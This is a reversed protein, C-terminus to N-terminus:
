EAPALRRAAELTEGRLTTFVARLRVAEGASPAGAPWPLTLVYGRVGLADVWTEATEDQSFTWVHLPTAEGADGADRGDAPPGFVELRLRGARKVVDGEADLPQLVVHLGEPGAQGDEDVPGTPDAFRVALPRYPDEPPTPRPSPEAGAATLDAIRDEAARLHDQLERNQEMLARVSEARSLTADGCGGALALGAAALLAAHRFRPM